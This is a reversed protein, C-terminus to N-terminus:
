SSVYPEVPQELHGPFLIVAVSLLVVIEFHMPLFNHKINEDKKTSLINVAKREYEDSGFGKDNFQIDTPKTKAAQYEVFIEGNKFHKSM